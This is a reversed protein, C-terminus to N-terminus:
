DCECDACDEAIAGEGGGNTGYARVLSLDAASAIAESMWGVDAGGGTSSVPDEKM